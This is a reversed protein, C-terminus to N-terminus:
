LVLREDRGSERAFNAFEVADLANKERGKDIAGHRNWNASYGVWASVITKPVESSAIATISFRFCNRRWGATCTRGGAGVLYTCPNIAVSSEERLM